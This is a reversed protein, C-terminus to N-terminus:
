KGGRKHYEYVLAFFHSNHILSEPHEDALIKLICNKLYEINMESIKFWRNKTKSYHYVKEDTMEPYGLTFALDSVQEFTGEVTLGNPFTIRM